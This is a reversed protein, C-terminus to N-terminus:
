NKIIQIYHFRLLTYFWNGLHFDSPQTHTLALKYIYYYVSSVIIPHHQNIVMLTVPLPIFFDQSCLAVKKSWLVAQYPHVHTHIVLCFLITFLPSCFSVLFM